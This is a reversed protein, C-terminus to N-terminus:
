PLARPSLRPIRQGVSPHSWDACLQAHIDVGSVHLRTFLRLLVYRSVAELHAIGRTNARPSGGAVIQV